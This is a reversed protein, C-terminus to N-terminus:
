GCNVPLPIKDQYEQKFESATCGTVKRFQSSLHSPSSYHMKRAIENLTLGEFLLLRKVREIRHCIYLKEITGKTTQSFVNSIYTYDYDLTDSLHASLNKGAPQEENYVFDFIALRVRHVLIEKKDELLTLGHRSLAARLQLLQGVTIGEPIQAEGMTIDIPRHGLRILETELLVLSRLNVM